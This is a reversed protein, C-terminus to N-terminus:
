APRHNARAAEREDELASIRNRLDPLVDEVLKDYEQARRIIEGILDREFETCHKEFRRFTQQLHHGLLQASMNEPRNNM